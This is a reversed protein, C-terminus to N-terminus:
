DDTPQENFHDIVVVDIPVKVKELKLGLQKELAAFLDPAPEAAAGTSAGCGPRLSDSFELKLDYKGSLGTDNALKSAAGLRIRLVQLLDEATVMRGALRCVGDRAFTSIGPYGPQFVPFGQDDLPQRVGNPLIRRPGDAPAAPKLKPGGKAVTLRYGDYDRKEMHYAFGFREILLNKLMEKAQEKTAGAPVKAVIDYRSGKSFYDTWNGIWAPPILDDEQPLNLANYILTRLGVGTFTMREPDPTGPGGQINTPPPCTTLTPCRVPTLKIPRDSVRVSAADFELKKDQASASLAAILIISCTRLAM